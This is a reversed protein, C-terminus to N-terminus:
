QKEYVRVDTGTAGKLTVTFTKGDKSLVHRSTSIVKGDKM